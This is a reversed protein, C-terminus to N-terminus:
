SKVTIESVIARFIIFKLVELEQFNNLCNKDTESSKGLKKYIFSAGMFIRMRQKSTYIFLFDTLSYLADNRHITRTLFREIRFFFTVAAATM